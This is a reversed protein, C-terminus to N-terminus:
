PVIASVGHIALSLGDHVLGGLDSPVEDPHLVLNGAMRLESMGYRAAAAVLGTIREAHRRLADAAADLGAAASRLAGSAVHAQAAFADAAVGSWDANAAAQDLRGARDRAAAAHGAIRDAIANLDAPDPLASVRRLM